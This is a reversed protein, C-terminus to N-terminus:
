SEGGPHRSSGKPALTSALISAMVFVVLAGAVGALVTASATSVLGPMQYDPMPTSAPAPGFLQSFGLVASVRELGDPASAAYPAVLLLLAITTAFGVLAARGVHGENPAETAGPILEPRTQMLASLVLATIVGEGVGILAHIGAMAPFLLASPAVGSWALETACCLAAAMTSCWAGCAAAVLLGKRGPMLRRLASSVTAGVLVGIIAMNVINAGLALLGGDAFLLCQVILVSSMIVVAASPGLLTTTLVAGLLHGSTGAMVPFNIMQAAFVFAASLGVLPVRRRPLTSQLRRLATWVGTASLLATAGTAHLNLLGDPIHM